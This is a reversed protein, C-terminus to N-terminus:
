EEEMEETTMLSNKIKEQETPSLHDWYYLTTGHTYDAVVKDYTLLRGEILYDWLLRALEDEDHTDFQVSYGEGDEGYYYINTSLTAKLKGM